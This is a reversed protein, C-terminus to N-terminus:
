KFEVRRNKSWANDGHDMAIPREEGYSITSLRDPSVGLAVLYSKVAVARHEGLALNYEDSGREDCHGEITVSASSNDKLWNANMAVVKRAADSLVYSDYDFYVTEFNRGDNATLVTASSLDAQDQRSQAEAQDNAGQTSDAPPSLVSGNLHGAKNGSCGSVSMSFLLCLIFILCSRYM